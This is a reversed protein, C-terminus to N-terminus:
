VEIQREQMRLTGEDRAVPSMNMLESELQGVHSGTKKVAGQLVYM